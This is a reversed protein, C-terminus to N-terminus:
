MDWRWDKKPDPIFGLKDDYKGDKIIRIDETWRLIKKMKDKDISPDYQLDSTSASSSIDIAYKSVHITFRSLVDKKFRVWECDGSLCIDTVSKIFENADKFVIVPITFIERFLRAADAKRDSIYGADLVSLMEYFRKKYRSDNSLKNFVNGVMEKKKQESIPKSICEHELISQLIDNVSKKSKKEVKKTDKSYKLTLYEEADQGNLEAITLILLDNDYVYGSGSEFEFGKDRLKYSYFINVKGDETVESATKYRRMVRGMRQVLSDMPAIETFLVDADIDLSAEVVQTAILIKAEREEPPKPNNFEKNIMENEIDARDKLTFRSHLLKIKINKTDKLKEYISQAKKVTNAIVLVRKGEMATKGIDEIANGIDTNHLTIEHKTLDDLGSYRDIFQYNEQGLRKQLETYIFDPLTATMLMFKGGLTFVDEIMKVIIAASRPDYAQVEDIVLRSYALTAHVKEYGPYKLAAPFIQDGTSVQVPLAFLRAMDLTRMNEDSIHGTKEYVYVDADSHLLGVDNPGFYSMMREYNANVASRLPLTFFLKHGAGWLAALETKGSGTPAVVVLNDNSKNNLEQIQWLATLDTQPFKSKIYAKVNNAADDKSLCKREITENIGTEQVYSSFHDTRMLFGAVFIYNRKFDNSSEIRQPLFYSLYPPTIYNFLDGGAEIMTALDNNFGIATTYKKLLPHTQFANLLNGLLGNRLNNNGSIKGIAEQLEKSNGSIIDSFNDRWHHFAIASLLLRKEDASIQPLADPVIFFISLISHPVTPFLAKPSYIWNGVSNVQFSPSAKGLDHLAVAHELTQWPVKHYAPLTQLQKKISEVQNLLESTHDRLTISSKNRDKHSKAVIESVM